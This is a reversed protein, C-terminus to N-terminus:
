QDEIEKKYINTVMIIGLRIYYIKKEDSWTKREDITKQSAHRFVQTENRFRKIDNENLFGYFTTDDVTQYKKGKKLIYEIANNLNELKEDIKMVYFSKEGTSIEKIIEEIDESLEFEPADKYKIFNLSEIIDRRAQWTVSKNNDGIQKYYLNRIKDYAFSKLDVENQIVNPFEKIRYNNEKLWSILFSYEEFDDDTFDSFKNSKKGGYKPKLTNKFSSIVDDEDQYIYPGISIM